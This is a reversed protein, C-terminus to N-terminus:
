KKPPHFRLERDNYVILDPYKKTRPDKEISGIQWKKLIAEVLDGFKNTLLLESFTQFKSKKYKTQLKYNTMQLKIKYKKWWKENVKLFKVFINRDGAVCISQSYNQACYRNMKESRNHVINLYQDTLFYNLCFKGAHSKSEDRSRKLGLISILGVAFFRATFIRGSRAIMLLDIDSTTSFSGDALSGNLLVCRVFPMTSLLSGILMTKKLARKSLSEV